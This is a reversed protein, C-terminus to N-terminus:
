DLFHDAFITDKFKMKLESYNVLMESQSKVRQKKTKTSMDELDIGLFYQITDQTRKHNLDEYYVVLKEAACLRSEVEDISSQYENFNKLCDEYSIFIPDTFEELMWRNTKKALENSLVTDLFNRRILHLIRIKENLIYDYFGPFVNKFHGYMFNFGVAKAKSPKYVYKKVYEEPTKYNSEIYVDKPSHWLKSHGFQEGLMKVQKHSQLMSRIM